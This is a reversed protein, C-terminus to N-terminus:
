FLNFRCRIRSNKKKGYLVEGTKNKNNLTLWVFNHDKSGDENLLIGLEYKKDLSKIITSTYYGDFKDGKM